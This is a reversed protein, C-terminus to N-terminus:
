TDIREVNQWPMSLWRVDSLIKKIMSIDDQTSKNNHACPPLQEALRPCAAELTELDDESIHFLRM